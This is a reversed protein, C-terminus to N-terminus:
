VRRRSYASLETLSSTLWCLERFVGPAFADNTGARPLIYSQLGSEVFGHMKTMEQVSPADKHWFVSRIESLVGQVTNQHINADTGKLDSASREIRDRSAEWVFWTHLDPNLHTWAITMGLELPMNFRPTSLPASTLEVRSLDHISYRCSQILALIRDLRRTGGPIETALHPTYGLRYLGVIYAVYLSRFEEDYPINLFVSNPDTQPPPM